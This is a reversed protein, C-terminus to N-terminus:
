EFAQRFAHWDAYAQAHPWRPDREVAYTLHVFALPAAPHETAFLYEDGHAGNLAVVRCAVRYLLHGPCVERQLEAEIRPLGDPTPAPEWRGPWPFNDPLEM